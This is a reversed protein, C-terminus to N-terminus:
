PLLLGGSGRIPQVLLRTLLGGSVLEPLVPFRNRSSTNCISLHNELCCSRKIILNIYLICPFSRHTQSLEKHLIILSPLHFLSDKTPSVRPKSQAARRSTKADHPGYLREGGPGPLRAVEMRGLGSVGDVHAELVVPRTRGYKERGALCGPGKQQM